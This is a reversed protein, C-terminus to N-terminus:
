DAIPLDAKRTLNCISLTGQDYGSFTQFTQLSHMSSFSLLRQEVGSQDLSCSM